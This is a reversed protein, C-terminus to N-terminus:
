QAKRIDKRMLFSRRKEKKKAFGYKLYLSLAPANAKLVSLEVGSRNLRGAMEAAYDLMHTAVGIKRFFPSVALMSIYLIEDKDQLALIGVAQDELSVLYRKQRSFYIESFLVWPVCVFYSLPPRWIAPSDEYDSKM